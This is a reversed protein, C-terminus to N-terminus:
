SSPFFRVKRAFLVAPITLFLTLPSLIGFLVAIVISLIMYDSPKYNFDPAQPVKLSFPCLIIIPSM